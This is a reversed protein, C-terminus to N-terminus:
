APEVTERGSSDFQPAQRRVTTGASVQSAVRFRWEVAVAESQGSGVKGAGRCQDSNEAECEHSPWQNRM